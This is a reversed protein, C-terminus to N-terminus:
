RTSILTANLIRTKWDDYREQSFSAEKVSYAVTYLGDSGTVFRRVERQAPWDGAGQHSWEFVISTPSEALVNTRFGTSGEELSKQTSALLQGIDVPRLITHWTLLETWDSVSEGPLVWELLIETQNRGANGTKWGRGDLEPVLAHAPMLMAPTAAPPASCGSVAVVTLLVAAFLNKM